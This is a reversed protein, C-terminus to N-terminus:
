LTEVSLIAEIRGLVEDVLEEGAKECLEANRM